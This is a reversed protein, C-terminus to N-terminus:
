GENFPDCIEVGSPAFDRVNRTVVTLDHVLATAVILSDKIPMVRGKRRLDAVLTAWRLGLAADGPLCRMRKVGRAFWRELEARRKSRPLLLIGFQIEGIIIPDVALDRENQRLWEVVRPEPKLKTPESLVSADVLYKM